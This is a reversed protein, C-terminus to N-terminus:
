EPQALMTDCRAQLAWRKRARRERQKMFAQWTEYPVAIHRRVLGVLGLDEASAALLCAALRHTRSSGKEPVQAARHGTRTLSSQASRSHVALSILISMPRQEARWSVSPQVSWAASATRAARCYQAAHRCGGPSVFAVGDSRKFVPGQPLPHVLLATSPRCASSTLAPHRCQHAAHRFRVKSILSIEAEDDKEAHRDGDEDTAMRARATCAIRGPRPPRTLTLM